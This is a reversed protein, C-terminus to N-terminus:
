HRTSAVMIFEAAARLDAIIEKLPLSPNEALLRELTITHTHLRQFLREM